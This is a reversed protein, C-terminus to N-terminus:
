NINCLSSKALNDNLTAEQYTPFKGGGKRFSCGQIIKHCMKGPSQKHKKSQRALRRRQLGEIGLNFFHKRLVKTLKKLQIYKGGVM